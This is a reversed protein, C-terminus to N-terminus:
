KVRSVLDFISTEPKVLYDIAGLERARKIDEDQSLNSLVIIPLKKGKAKLEELVEFGNKKPMVLDLLVINFSQKNLIDLAEVGDAATVVEFGANTFKLELARCLPKEDDVILIRKPRSQDM